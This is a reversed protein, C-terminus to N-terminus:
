DENIINLITTSTYCFQIWGRPYHLWWLKFVLHLGLIEGVEPIKTVLKSLGKRKKKNWHSRITEPKKLDLVRV